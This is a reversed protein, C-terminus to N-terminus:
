IRKRILNELEEIKQFYLENYDYDNEAIHPNVTIFINNILGHELTIAPIVATDFDDAEYFVDELEYHQIDKPNKDNQKAYDYVAKYITEILDQGSEYGSIVALMEAYPLCKVLNNAFELAYETYEIYGKQQSLIERNYEVVYGLYNNYNLELNVRSQLPHTWSLSYRIANSFYFVKLDGKHKVRGKTILTEIEKYDCGRYLFKFDADDSFDNIEVPKKRQYIQRSATDLEFYKM